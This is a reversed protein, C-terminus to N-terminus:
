LYNTGGLTLNPALFGKYRYSRKGSNLHIYHPGLISFSSFGILRAKVALFVHFNWVPCRATSFGVLPKLRKIPRMKKRRRSTYYVWLNWLILNLTNNMDTILSM